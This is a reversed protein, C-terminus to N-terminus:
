SRTKASCFRALAQSHASAFSCTVYLLCALLCCAVRCAPLCAVLLCCCICCAFCCALLLLVVCCVFCYAFFVFRYVPCRVALLSCCPLPLLHRCAFLLICGSQGTPAQSSPDTQSNRIQKTQQENKNNM